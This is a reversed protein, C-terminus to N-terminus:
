EWDGWEKKMEMEEREKGRKGSWHVSLDEVEVMTDLKLLLTLRDGTKSLM